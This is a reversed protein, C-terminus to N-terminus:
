MKALCRVESQRKENDRVDLETIYEGKFEVVADDPEAIPTAVAMSIFLGTLAFIQTFAVMKIALFNIYFHRNLLHTNNLLITSRIYHIIFFLLAPYFTPNM